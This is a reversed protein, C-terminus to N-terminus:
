KGNQQQIIVGNPYSKGLKQEPQVASINTDYWSEEVPLITASSLIEKLTDAMGSELGEYSEIEAIKAEIEQKGEQTLYIGKMKKKIKPYISYDLEIPGNMSTVDPLENTPKLVIYTQGDKGELMQAANVWKALLEKQKTKKM